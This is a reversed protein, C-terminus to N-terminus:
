FFISKNQPTPRRSLKIPKLPPLRSSPEISRVVNPQRYRRRNVEVSSVRQNIKEPAIVDLEEEKFRDIGPVKQMPYSLINSLTPGPLIRQTLPASVGPFIFGPKQVSAIM